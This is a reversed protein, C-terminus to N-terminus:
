GSRSERMRAMMLLVFGIAIAVAVAATLQWRRRWHITLADAAAESSVAAIPAPDNSVLLVNGDWLDAFATEDLAFSPYCGTSFPAGRATQQRDRHLARLSSCAVIDIRL